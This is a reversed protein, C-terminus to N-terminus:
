FLPFTRGWLDFIELRILDIINTKIFKMEWRRSCVRCSHGQKPKYNQNLSYEVIGTIPTLEQGFYAPIEFKHPEPIDVKKPRNDKYIQKLKVNFENEWSNALPIGLDYPKDNFDYGLGYVSNGVITYSHRWNGAYKSDITIDSELIKTSNKQKPLHELLYLPTSTPNQIYVQDMSYSDFFETYIIVGEPVSAHDISFHIQYWEDPGACSFAFAKPATHTITIIAIVLTIYKTINNLTKNKYM